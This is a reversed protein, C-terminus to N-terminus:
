LHPLKMRTKDAGLPRARFVWLARVPLKEFDHLTQDKTKKSIQVYAGSSYVPFQRDFNAKKTTKVKNRKVKPRCNKNINEKWKRETNQFRTIEFLWQSRSQMLLVFNKGMGQADNHEM